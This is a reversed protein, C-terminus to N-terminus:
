DLRESLVRVNVGSSDWDVWADHRAGIAEYDDSLQLASRKQTGLELMTGLFSMTGPRAEVDGAGTSVVLQAAVLPLDHREVVLVRLGNKLKAEAIKPAAFSVKTTAVPPKQRFPADPTAQAA